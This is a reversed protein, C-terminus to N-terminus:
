GMKVATEVAFSPYSGLISVKCGLAELESITGPILVEDLAMEVDIIFFYNGLGTKMPRSEIKSLNLKRWAFASLVQHLAGSHDAPLMVMLTTKWGRNVTVHGKYDVSEKSVVIFKTHNYSYDHVNHQVITLGYEEAALENAIAAIKREPQESVMKAAAATSTVEECPIGKWEKHLFKHCQAIAHPHSYIMDPKFGPVAQDPHVMFHQQIPTIVEGQIPLQVEHILYDITINVSGELANEIPVVAIDAEGEQIADICDPITAKPMKLENPFLRSVALDTFTAKPGLFAIKHSM